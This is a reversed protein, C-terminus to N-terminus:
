VRGKPDGEPALFTLNVVSGSEGGRYEVCPPVPSEYYLSSESDDFCDPLLGLMVLDGNKDLFASDSEFCVDFDFASAYPNGTDFRITVKKERSGGTVNFTLTSSQEMYDACDIGEPTMSMTLVGGTGDDFATVTASTDGQSVEGTCDSGPECSVVEGTINFPGSTATGLGAASAVLTYGDDPQDISLNSFTAIGASTPVSTAGALTGGGPNNGIAMSVSIPSGSTRLHSAGDYVAVRVPDGAPDFDVSSITEGLGADGPQGIFALSCSGTVASMRKNLPTLLLFLPGTFDAGTKAAASWVNGASPTCAATATVKVTFSHLLALNLNRLKVTNGVVAATGRSTVVGTISYAAPVSLDASGLKQLWWNTFTATFQKSAGATSVSPSLTMTFPKPIVITASAAPAMLGVLLLAALALVIKSRLSRTRRM